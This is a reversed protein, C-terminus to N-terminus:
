DFTSKRTFVRLRGTYPAPRKFSQVLHNYLSRARDLPKRLLLLVAAEPSFKFLTAPSVPKAELNLGGYLYSPTGDVPLYNSSNQVLSLNFCSKYCDEVAGAGQGYKYLCGLEKHRHCQTQAQFEHAIM